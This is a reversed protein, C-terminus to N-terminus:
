PLLVKVALELARASVEVSGVQALGRARQQQCRAQQDAGDRVGQLGVEEDGEGLGVMDGEGVDVGEGNVEGGETEAELDEVGEGWAGEVGGHRREEGGVWGGLGGEQGGEGLRKELEFARLGAVIGDALSGGDGGLLEGVLMELTGDESNRGQSLLM